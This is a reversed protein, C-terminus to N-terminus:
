TESPQPQKPFLQELATRTEDSRRAKFDNVWGTVNSVMERAALRTAKVSNLKATTEAAAASRKIIKVKPKETMGEGGQYVKNTEAKSKLGKGAIKRALIYEPLGSLQVTLM